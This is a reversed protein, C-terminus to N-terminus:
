RWVQLFSPPSSVPSFSWLSTLHIVLSTFSSTQARPALNPTSCSDPSPPSFICIYSILPWSSPPFFPISLGPLFVPMGQHKSSKIYLLFDVPIAPSVTTGNGSILCSPPERIM